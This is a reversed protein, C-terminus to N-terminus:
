QTSGDRAERDTSTETVADRYNNNADLVARICTRRIDSAIRAIYKEGERTPPIGGAKLGVLGRTTMGTWDDGHSTELYIHVSLRPTRGQECLARYDKVARRWARRRQIIARITALNRRVAM